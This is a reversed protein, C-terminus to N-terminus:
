IHHALWFALFTTASVGFFENCFFNQNIYDNNFKSINLIVFYLLKIFKNFPIEYKVVIPLGVFLPTVFRTFGNPLRSIKSIIKVYWIWFYQHSYKFIMNGHIELCLTSFHRVHNSSVNHNRLLAMDITHFQPCTNCFLGYQLRIHHYSQPFSPVDSSSLVRFQLCLTYYLISILNISYKRIKTLM